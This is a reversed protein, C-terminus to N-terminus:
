TVKLFILDLYPTNKNNDIMNVLMKSTNNETM